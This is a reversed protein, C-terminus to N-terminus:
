LGHHIRENYLVVSSSGAISYQLRFLKKIFVFTSTGPISLLLNPKHDLFNFYMVHVLVTEVHISIKVFTSVARGEVSRPLSIGQSGGLM